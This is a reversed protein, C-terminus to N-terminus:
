KISQSILWKSAQMDQKYRPPDRPPHGDTARGGRGKRRRGARKLATRSRKGHGGVAPGGHQRGLWQQFAQDAALRMAVPRVRRGYGPPLGGALDRGVEYGHGFWPGEAPASRVSLARAGLDDSVRRRGRALVVPSSRSVGLAEAMEEQTYGLRRRSGQLERGTVSCRGEPSLSRQPHHSLAGVGQGPATTARTHGRDWGVGESAVQLIGGACTGPGCPDVDRYYLHGHPGAPILYQPHRGRGGVPAHCLQPPAYAPM